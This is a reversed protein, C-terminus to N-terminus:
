ATASPARTRTRVGGSAARQLEEVTRRATTSWTFLSARSIAHRRLLAAREPTELVQGVADSLSEADDDRAVYVAADGFFEPMPDRRVSVSPCGYSMAELAVNPCAEARSTMVFASTRGYCWAMERPPLPGVWDVRRAVGLAAAQARLREAHRRTAQTADGAIVLRLDPFRPALRGFSDLLSSLGRAPRVSGAAFLFAVDETVIGAPRMWRAAPLPPEVGHPVIAISAENIRWRDRLFRAVFDSVAIMRDASRCARLAIAARAVNRVCEIVTHGTFPVTVPEMNRMMTVRPIGPCRVTRATPVFLVDAGFRAIHRPWEGTEIVELPLDPQLSEKLAPAVYVRVAAVGPHRILEPVIGNLYKVYGSSMGGGTPNAIAIRMSTPNAQGADATM